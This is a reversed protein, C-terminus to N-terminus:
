SWQRKALGRGGGAPPLPHNFMLSLWLLAESPVILVKALQIDTCDRKQGLKLPDVYHREFSTWDGLSGPNAWNLLSWLEKHSNQM